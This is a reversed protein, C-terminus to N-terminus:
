TIVLKYDTQLFNYIKSPTPSNIQTLIPSNFMSQLNHYACKFKKM